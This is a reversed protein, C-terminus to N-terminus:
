FFLAILTGLCILIFGIFPALIKLKESLPFHGPFPYFDNNWLEKNKYKKKDGFIIIVLQLYWPLEEFKFNIQRRFSQDFLRKSLVYTGLITLLGGIAKYLM